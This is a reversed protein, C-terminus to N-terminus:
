ALDQVLELFGTISNAKPHLRFPLEEAKCILM